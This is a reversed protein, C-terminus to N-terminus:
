VKIPEDCGALAMVLLALFTSQMIKSSIRGLLPLATPAMMLTLKMKGQGGAQMQALSQTHKVAEKSTAELSPHMPNRTFSQCGTALLAILAVPLKRM